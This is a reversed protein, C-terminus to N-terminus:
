AAFYVTISKVFVRKAFVIELMNTAETLNFTLDGYSGITATQTASGNVSITDGQAYWSECNFVVKNIKAGYAFGLTLEGNKSGTGTKLCGTANPIAGSDTNNGNYISSSYIYSLYNANDSTQFASNFETLLASGAVASSSASTVVSTFDYTASVAAATEAKLVTITAKKQATASNLTFTATLEVNVDAAGRTVTANAGSIAIAENNSAWSITVDPNAELTTDLTFNGIAKKVNIYYDSVLTDLVDQDDLVSSGTKEMEFATLQFGNYWDGVGKVTLTDGAALTKAFTDMETYSSVEKKLRVTLDTEGVKGYISYSSGSKEVETKTVVFDNVELLIGQNLTNTLETAITSTINKRTPLTNGESILSAEFAINSSGCAIQHLGNYNDKEGAVYVKNGVQMIDDYSGPVRYLYLGGETENQIYAVFNNYSSDVPVRAIVIGEAAVLTGKAAAQVAQITMASIGKLVKVSWPKTKTCQGYTFSGTLTATKDAASDRHVIAKDGTTAVELVEPHDSTYTIAVGEYEKVLDFDATVGQTYLQLALYEISVEDIAADVREEDTMEVPSTSDSQTPSTSDTISSSNNSSPSSKDKKDGGCGTLAVALAAVLISLKGLKKMKVGKEGKM